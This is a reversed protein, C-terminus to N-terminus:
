MYSFNYVSIFMSLKTISIVDLDRDSQCVVELSLPQQDLVSKTSVHLQSEYMFNVTPPIPDKRTIYVTVPGRSIKNGPESDGISLPADTAIFPAFWWRCILGTAECVFIMTYDDKSCVTM